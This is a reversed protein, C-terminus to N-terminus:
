RPLPGYKSPPGPDSLKAYQRMGEDSQMFLGVAEAGVKGTAQEAAKEFQRYEADQAKLVAELGDASKQLQRMVDSGGEPDRLDRNKWLQIIAGDNAGAPVLAVKDIRLRRLFAPKRDSM